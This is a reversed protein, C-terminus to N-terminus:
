TRTNTRGHLERALDHAAELGQSTARVANLGATDAAGGIVRHPIDLSTLARLLGDNREQGAALIVTDAEIFEHGRETAVLVGTDTIARYNVGTIMRAGRHRLAGVAVWRTTLGIGAGIKGTRRMLTVSRWPQAQVPQRDLGWEARFSAGRAGVGKTANDLLLHALDVAIGGAGIIVVRRGIAAPDSFARRYDLVGPSEIGPLDPTRPLVGTALVVADNDTLQGADVIPAGLRVDVEAEHLMTAFYRITEGFDEKGPVTRAMRFQGGLENGAEHM